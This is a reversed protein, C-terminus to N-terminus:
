GPESGASFLLRLTSFTPYRLELLLHSGGSGPSQPTVDGMPAERSSWPNEEKSVGQRCGQSHTGTPFCQAKGQPIYGIPFPTNELM